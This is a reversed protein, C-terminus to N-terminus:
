ETKNLQLRAMIPFHDSFEVDYTKFHNVTILEDTLIFDIRAPFMYDYTKGLGKGAEIFADNKDHKLQRYAWSFATNNFDGAIITKYNCNEQHAIIQEVQAVQKQFTNALRNVLKESDEEGFNEEDVEIHQSELHVNYVRLTDDHKIIDVFITNNASEKFDLSGKNIIKYKSHIALGFNSVRRNINNQNYTYKYGFDIDNNTLFEQFILIDPDKTKVFDSVLKLTEDKEKDKWKYINFLRVNYSMVKLDDTLLIKKENFQYFANIKGFSLIIVVTSLLFQKKLKVIWYIM